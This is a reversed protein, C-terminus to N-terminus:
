RRRCSRHDPRARHDGGVHGCLATTPPMGARSIRIRSAGFVNRQASQADTRGLGGARPALNRSTRPELAADSDLAAGAGRRPGRCAGAPLRRGTGTSALFAWDSSQLALLERLARQAPSDTRACADAARRDAGAVRPRRGRARELHAPRGGEGAARAARRLEPASTRVEHRELADDLTTLTLGQRAAEDIVAHLWHVGEYWWHGLLETDLACVCVGGGAVRERVRAVFDEPTCRRRRSRPPSTTPRRRRQALRSPPPPSTTTTATPRRASPYGGSAGCWRSRRATSRGCCRGTTPPSRSCTRRTASGSRTRDARRLHRARGGGRADPGAVTRVRVRAALPRRAWDGFRRRHSEVGTQLQLAVGADTALLPLVAHTAASTWGRAAGLAELLGGPLASSRPEAAAAYEAASRELEAVLHDPGRERMLEIDLRHSEPRVDRLFALCREIAGPAELQDCLVPTLSLTIPARGLVDSRAARLSTAIAEWLWEEGFPWTGFGEVYPMHTHLVIALEGPRPRRPECGVSPSSTSRTTSVAARLAFDTTAIAPTFRDYFPKTVCVRTCGIGGSGLALAHSALKRAHFLGLLEVSASRRDPVARPVRRRPIRPHAVPQRVQEAGPPALTLLNPTSIYAADRGAGAAMRFHRLVAVPDQVHEITQLFVVADYSGPEGYSEVPGREFSCTRGGTACGPTSTRRLIPTSASCRLRRAPWCRPATARAAPWTSCACGTCGRSRDVRVRRSPPSVLLERRPRRAAHARRDPALPPVGPPQNQQTYVGDADLDSTRPWVDPPSGPCPLTGCTM